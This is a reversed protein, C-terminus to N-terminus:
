QLMRKIEVEATVCIMYLMQFDPFFLISIVLMYLYM